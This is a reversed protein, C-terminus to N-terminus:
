RIADTNAIKKGHITTFTLSMPAARQIAPPESDATSVAHVTTISASAGYNLWGLREKQFGNYHPSAPQYAGM